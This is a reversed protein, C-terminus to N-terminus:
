EGVQGRLDRALQLKQVIEEHTNGSKETVTELRLLELRVENASFESTPQMALVGSITEGARFEHQPLRVQLGQEGTIEEDEEDEEDAAPDAEEAQFEEEESLDEEDLDGTWSWFAGPYCSCVLSASRAASPRLSTASARAPIGRTCM